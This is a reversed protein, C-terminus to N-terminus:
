AKKAVKLEQAPTEYVLCQIMSWPILFTHSRHKATVGFRGEEMEIGPYFNSDFTSSSMTGLTPIHFAKTCHVHTIKM